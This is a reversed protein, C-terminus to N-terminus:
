GCPEPTQSADLGSHRATFVGGDRFRGPRKMKLCRTFRHDDAHRHRASHRFRLLLKNLRQLVNAPRKAILFDLSEPVRWSVLPIM